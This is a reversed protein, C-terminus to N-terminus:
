FNGLNLFNVRRRKGSLLAVQRRWFNILGILQAPTQWRVTQGDVSTELINVQGLASQMQALYLNNLITQAFGLSDQKAPIANPIPGVSPRLPGISNVAIGSWDLVLVLGGSWPASQGIQLDTSAPTAGTQNYVPLLFTPSAPIQVPLSGFYVGSLPITETLPVCYNIWNAASFTELTTGNWWQNPPLSIQFYDTRGTQDTIQIENAM